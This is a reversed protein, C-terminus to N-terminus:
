KTDSRCDLILIIKLQAELYKGTAMSGPCVILSRHNLYELNRVFAACIHIM